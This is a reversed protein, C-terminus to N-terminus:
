TRRKPWTSSRATRCRAREARRPRRRVGLASRGVVHRELRAGDARGARHARDRRRGCLAGGARVHLQRYDEDRDDDDSDACPRAGVAADDGHARRDARRRAREDRGSRGRVDSRSTMHMQRVTRFESEAAHGRILDGPRPHLAGRGVGHRRSSLVRRDTRAAVEPRGARPAHRPSESHASSRRRLSQRDIRGPVVTRRHAQASTLKVLPGNVPGLPTAM